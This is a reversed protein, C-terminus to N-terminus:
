KDKNELRWISGTGGGWRKVGSKEVKWLFYIGWIYGCFMTVLWFIVTEIPM